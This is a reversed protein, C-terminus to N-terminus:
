APRSRAIWPARSARTASSRSSNTSDSSRAAMAVKGAYGGTLGVPKPAQPNTRLAVLVTKNNARKMGPVPEVVLTVDYVWYDHPDRYVEPVGAHGSVVDGFDAAFIADKLDAALVDARPKCTTLIGM